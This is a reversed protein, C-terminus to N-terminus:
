EVKTITLLIILAEYVIDIRATDLVVPTIEKSLLSGCDDLSAFVAMAGSRLREPSIRSHFDLYLFRHYRTKQKSIFSTAAVTTVSLCVFWAGYGQPAHM